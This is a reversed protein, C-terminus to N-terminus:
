GHHWQHGCKPCSVTNSLKDLGDGADPIEQVIPVEGILLDLEAPDFGTVELGDLDGLELKLVNEDWASEEGVRNDAIRYAKIQKATLNRAIHVPVSEMGLSQAALWRTHGVVIVGQKDVVIPQRWGFETLSAAVKDVASQPIHRPNNKYPKVKDTAWTEVKLNHEQM